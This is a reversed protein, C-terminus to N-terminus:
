RQNFNDQNLGNLNVTPCIGSFSSMFPDDVHNSISHSRLMQLKLINAM